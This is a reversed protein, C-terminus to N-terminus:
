KYRAALDKQLLFENYKNIKLMVHGPKNSPVIEPYLLKPLALLLDLDFEDPTGVRLEDYFSGGYFVRQYM